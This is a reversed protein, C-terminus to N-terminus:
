NSRNKFNISLAMDNLTKLKFENLENTSKNKLKFKGQDHLQTILGKKGMNEKSGESLM